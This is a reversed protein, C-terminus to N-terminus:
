ANNIKAKLSTGNIRFRIWRSDNANSIIDLSSGIASSSGNVYKHLSVLSSIRLFYAEETTDTGSGRVFFRVDGNIVSTWRGVLVLIEVDANGDVDNWSLFAREASSMSIVLHNSQSPYEKLSDSCDCVEVNSSINGTHWRETWDSPPSGTGYEEFYTSYETM